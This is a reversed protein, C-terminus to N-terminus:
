RLYKLHLIFVTIKKGLIKQLTYRLTTSIFVCIFAFPLWFYPRLSWSIRWRLWEMYIRKRQSIGSTNVRSIILPIHQINHGDLVSQYVFKYDASLNDIDYLNQCQLERKILLSQHCFGMHHWLDRAQKIPTAYHIRNWNLHNYVVEHDGFVLPPINPTKLLLNLNRLVQNDYLCDGGNLFLLWAGTSLLTGRNMADYIGSDSLSLWFDISTDYKRLLKQTTSLKQPKSPTALSDVHHSGGDIIIYEFNADSQRCVSRITKQLAVPDEKTISIISILKHSDETVEKDQSRSGGSIHNLNLSNRLIDPFIKDHSYSLEQIAKHYPNTFTM